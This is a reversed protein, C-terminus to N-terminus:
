CWCAPESPARACSWASPSTASSGRAGAPLPGNGGGRRARPARDGGRAAPRLRPQHGGRAGGGRQRGAAPRVGGLRAAAGWGAPLCPRRPGCLDGVAGACQPARVAHDPSVAPRGRPRHHRAARPDRRAAAAHAACAPDGDRLELPIDLLGRALTPSEPSVERRWLRDFRKISPLDYGRAEHLGFQMPIVNQPIESTSVFRADGGERQLVRIAGTAPQEALDRDISPNYGMGARFLDVCVLALVLVVFVAPGLRGGLRLAILAVGAGAMLAWIAMSSM